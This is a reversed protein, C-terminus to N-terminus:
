AESAELVCVGGPGLAFTWIGEIAGGNLRRNEVVVREGEFTVLRVYSPGAPSFPNMVGALLSVCNDQVRPADHSQHLHGGVLVALRASEEAARM